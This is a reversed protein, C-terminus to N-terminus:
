VDVVAAVNLLLSFVVCSISLKNDGCILCRYKDASLGVQWYKWGGGKNRRSM